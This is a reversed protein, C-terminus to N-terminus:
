PLDVRLASDEALVVDRELTTRSNVWAKLKYSGAPLGTLRFAGDDGSVVFHPTALVLIVGRMHEHIDCRLVVLGPEDFIVAPVPREDARYRGLDFRKAPSYSFINHFTDDLNPFEVRAGVPVALLQPVFMLDKQEVRVVPPAVPAPFDGELYVIALPPNTAVVGGTSVIEYRKNVVPAAPRRPLAVRGEITAARVSSFAALVMCGTLLLVRPSPTKM